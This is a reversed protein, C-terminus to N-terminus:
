MNKEERIQTLKKGKYNFYAPGHITKWDRGDLEKYLNLALTSLSYVEGKYEVRRDDAVKCKVEDHGLLTIIDGEKLGIMSFKFPKKNMEDEKKQEPTLEWKKM